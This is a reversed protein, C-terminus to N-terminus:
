ENFYSRLGDNELRVVMADDTYGCVDYVAGASQNFLMNIIGLFSQSDPRKRIRACTNLPTEAQSSFNFRAAM